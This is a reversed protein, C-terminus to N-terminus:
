GIHTTTKHHFHDQMSAQRSIKAKPKLATNPKANTDIKAFYFLAHHLCHTQYRMEIAAILRLFQPL